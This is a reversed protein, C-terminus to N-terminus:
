EKGRNGGRSVVFSVEAASTGPNSPDGEQLHPGPEGELSDALEAPADELNTAVQGRNPNVVEHPRDSESTADARIKIFRSHHDKEHRAARIGITWHLTCPPWLSERSRCGEHTQPIDGYHMQM